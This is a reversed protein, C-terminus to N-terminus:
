RLKKEECHEPLALPHLHTRTKAGACGHFFRSIIGVCVGRFFGVLVLVVLVLVMLVLVMLVLVVMLALALLPLFLM